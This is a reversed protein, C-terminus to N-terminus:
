LHKKIINLTLKASNINKTLIFILILIKSEMLNINKLM